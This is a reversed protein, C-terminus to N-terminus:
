SIENESVRKIEKVIEEKRIENNLEAQINSNESNHDNNLTNFDFLFKLHMSLSNESSKSLIPSPLISFTMIGSDQFVSTQEFVIPFTFLLLISFETINAGCLSQDVLSLFKTSPHFTAYM